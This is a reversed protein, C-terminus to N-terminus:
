IIEKGSSPRDMRRETAKGVPQVALVNGVRDELSHGEIERAVNALRHVQVDQKRLVTQLAKVLPEDTPTVHRRKFAGRLGKPVRLRADADVENARTLIRSVGLGLGKVNRPRHAHTM